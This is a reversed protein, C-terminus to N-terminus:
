KLAITLFAPVNLFYRMSISGEDYVGIFAPVNLFYRMSISVRM